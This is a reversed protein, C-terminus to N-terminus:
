RFNNPALGEAKQAAMEVKFWVKKRDEWLFAELWSSIEPVPNLCPAKQEINLTLPLVLQTTGAPVQMSPEQEGKATPGVAIIDYFCQHWLM